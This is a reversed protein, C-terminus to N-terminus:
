KSNFRRHNTLIPTNSTEKLLSVKSPEGSAMMANLSKLNPELDGLKTIKHLPVGNYIKVGLVTLPLNFRVFMSFDNLGSTSFDKMMQATNAQNESSFTITTNLVVHIPQNIVFQQSPIM